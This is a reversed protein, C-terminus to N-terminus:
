HLHMCPSFIPVGEMPNATNAITRITRMEEMDAFTISFNLPKPIFTGYFTPHIGNHVQEASIVRSRISRLQIDIWMLEIQELAIFVNNLTSSEVLTETRQISLNSAELCIIADDLQGAKVRDIGLNNLAGVAVYYRASVNWHKSPVAMMERSNRNGSTHSSANSNTFPLPIATYANGGSINM